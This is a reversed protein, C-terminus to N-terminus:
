IDILYGISLSLTTQRAEIYTGNIIDTFGFYYRPEFFITNRGTKYSLGLGLALGADLLNLEDKKVSIDFDKTGTALQTEKTGSLAFGLYPGANLFFKFNGSGLIIKAMVPIQLYNLTISSNGWFYDNTYKTGSQSFLLEPQIVFANNIKFNVVFGVHAGPKISGRYFFGGGASTSMNSLNLGGKLGISISGPANGDLVAQAGANISIFIFATFLIKKM